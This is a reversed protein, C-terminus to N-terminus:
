DPLLELIHEIAPRGVGEFKQKLIEKAVKTGYIQKNKMYQLMGRVSLYGIIEGGDILPQLKKRFEILQPDIELKKFIQDDEKFELVVDFRDKLGLNLIKTGEYTSPNMTAVFVFDPHARVVEGDKQVLVIRREDDLLSNLVFLIEPNAANIEDCVFIGGYRMFRILVGDSWVFKGNNPIWQGVLDEVTTSGNLNVRCYPLKMQCALWRICHTKGVGTEGVLLINQRRNIATSLIAVDTIGAIKRPIYEECTQPILEELPHQKSTPQVEVRSEAPQVRRGCSARHVGLALKNQFSRGCNGCIFQM